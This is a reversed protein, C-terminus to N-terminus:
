KEMLSKLQNLEEVLGPIGEQEWAIDPMDVPQKLSFLYECGDDNKILRTPVPEGDGFILDITGTRYDSDISFPITGFPTTAYYTGDEIKVEKIFNIAWETQNLPDILYTFVKDYNANISISQTTINRM